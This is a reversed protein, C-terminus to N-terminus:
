AKESDEAKAESSLRLNLKTKVATLVGSEVLASVKTIWLSSFFTTAM